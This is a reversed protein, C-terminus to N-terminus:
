PNPSRTFIIAYFNDTGFNYYRSIVITTSTIYYDYENSDSSPIRVLYDNSGDNLKVFIWVKPVYGLNHTITTSTNPNAISASTINYIAHTALESNFALNINGTTLVNFTPKSIKLVVSM